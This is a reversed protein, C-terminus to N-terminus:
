QEFTTSHLYPNFGMPALYTQWHQWRAERAISTAALQGACFAEDALRFDCEYSDQLGPPLGDV